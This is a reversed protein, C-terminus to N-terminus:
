HTCQPHMQELCKGEIQRDLNGLVLGDHLTFTAAIPTLKITCSMHPFLPLCAVYLTFFGHWRRENYMYRTLVKIYQRVEQPTWGLVRTFPLLMLSEFFSIDELTLLFKMFEVSEKLREGPAPQWPMAIPEWQVDM